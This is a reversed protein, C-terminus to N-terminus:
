LDAAGDKEERLKANLTESNVHRAAIEDILKCPWAIDQKPRNRCINAAKEQDVQWARDLDLTYGHGNPKWWKLCDGCFGKNQIYFLPTFIM